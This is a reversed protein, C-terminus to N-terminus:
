VPDKAARVVLHVKVGAVEADVEIGTLLLTHLNAFVADALAREDIINGSLKDLGLMVADVEM